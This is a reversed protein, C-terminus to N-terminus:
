YNEGPRDNSRYVYVSTTPRPQENICLSKRSVIDLGHGLALDDVSRERDGGGRGGEEETIRRNEATPIKVTDLDFEHFRHWSHWSRDFRISFRSIRKAPISLYRSIEIMLPAYRTM